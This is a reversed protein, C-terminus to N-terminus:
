STKGTAHCDRYVFKSNRNLVPDGASLGPGVSKPMFSPFSHMYFGTYAQAEAGASGKQAHDGSESESEARKAAERRKKEDEAIKAEANERAIEAAHVQVEAEAFRQQAEERANEAESIVDSRQQVEEPVNVAQAIVDSESDSQQPAVTSQSAQKNHTHIRTPTHVHTSARQVCAAPAAFFSATLCSM